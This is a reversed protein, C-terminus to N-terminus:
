IKLQTEEMNSLHRYTKPAGIMKIHKQRTAVTYKYKLYEM